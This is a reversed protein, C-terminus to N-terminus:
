LSIALLGIALVDLTTLGRHVLVKDIIVQFFLPTVLAFLQLFFSALLVEAFLRRHKIIAPVFWRFGFRATPSKLSARRTVLILRGSWADEFIARPLTLPRQELPDQILVKDDRIGALVFFHGDVHVAIAPLPLEQLRQWRSEILRVRLGLYRGARLLATTEPLDSATAFLHRLQATDAALGHLRALNVLCALGTDLPGSPTSHPM